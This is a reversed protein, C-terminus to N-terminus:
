RLRTPIDTYAIIRQIIRDAIGSRFLEVNKNGDLKQVFLDIDEESMGISKLLELDEPVYYPLRKMRKGHHNEDSCKRKHTYVISKDPFIIMAYRSHAVHPVIKADNMSLPVIGNIQRMVASPLELCCSDILAWV